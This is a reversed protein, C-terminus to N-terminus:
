MRVAIHNDMYKSIDGLFCAAIISITGFAISTYYVYVYSEAYAIQGASVVLKWATENGTIGPIAYLEDILSAGTLTIAETIYTVNTIGLEVM